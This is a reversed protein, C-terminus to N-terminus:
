TTASTSVLAPPAPFGLQRWAQGVERIRQRQREDSGVVCRRRHTRAADWRRLECCANETLDLTWGQPVVLRLVAPDLLAVLSEHLARLRSAFTRRCQASFRWKGKKDRAGDRGGVTCAALTAEAGQGVVTCAEVDTPTVLGPLLVGLDRAVLMALFDSHVALVTRLVRSLPVGDALKRLALDFSGQRRLETWLQACLHKQSHKGGRGRRRSEQAWQVRRMGSCASDLTLAELAQLLAAEDVSGAYLSRGARAEYDREAAVRAGRKNLLLRTAWSKQLKVADMDEQATCVLDRSVGDLRTNIELRQHHQWDAHFEFEETGEEGRSPPAEGHLKRALARGCANVWAAMRRTSAAAEEPSTNAGSAVAAGPRLAAVGLRESPTGPESEIHVVRGQPSQRLLGASWQRTPAHPASPVAARHRKPPPPELAGEPLLSVGNHM